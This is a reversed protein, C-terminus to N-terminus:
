PLEEASRLLQGALAEIFADARTPARLEGFFHGDRVVFLAPLHFVEYRAVMGQSLGADLWLLRDVPLAQRPLWDRLHRCSACGISSFILLSTGALELLQRDADLDSLQLNAVISGSGGRTQRCESNATM